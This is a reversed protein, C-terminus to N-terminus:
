QALRRYLESNKSLVREAAENFDPEPASLLDAVVAGALEEPALGLRKARARLEDVQSETLEIAVRM